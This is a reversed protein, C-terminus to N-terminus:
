NWGIELGFLDGTSKSLSFDRLFFRLHYCWFVDLVDLSGTLSESVNEVLLAETAQYIYGEEFSVGLVWGHIDM